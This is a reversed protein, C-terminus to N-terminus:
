FIYLSKSSFDIRDILIPLNKGNYVCCVLMSLTYVLCNCGVFNFDACQSPLYNRLLTYSRMINSMPIFAIKDGNYISKSTNEKVLEIYLKVCNKEGEKGKEYIDIDHKMVYLAGKLM